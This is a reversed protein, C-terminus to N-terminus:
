AFALITLSVLLFVAMCGLTLGFLELSEQKKGNVYLLAPKGFILAATVAMSFIILMLFVIVNFAGLTNKFFKDSNLFIALVVFSIYAIEGITSALAYTILKKQTKQQM